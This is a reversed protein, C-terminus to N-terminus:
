PMLDDSLNFGHHRLRGVVEDAQSLPVYWAKSERDFWRAPMARVVDVLKRDYPFSICLRKQEEEIDIRRTM